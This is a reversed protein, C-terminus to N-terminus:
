ACGALGLVILLTDVLISADEVQSLKILSGVRRAEDYLGRQAPTTRKHASVRGLVSVVESAGADAEACHPTLVFAPCCVTGQFASYLGVFECYVRLSSPLVHWLAQAWLSVCACQVCAGAAPGVPYARLVQNLPDVIIQLTCVPWYPAAMAKRVCLFLPRM